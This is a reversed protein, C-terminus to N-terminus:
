LMISDGIPLLILNKNEAKFKSKAKNHDIELVPFSDYHYGLITNVNVFNSAILAEDIGMTYNDGIPLIALDLTYFMPILKMDLTLATDGAIYISKDEATLVFGCPSGGYSGDPFSSSHVATVCKLIGFNFTATGGQNMDIADLAKAKYYNAIEYNSIIIANTQKVIAEVDATHDGHAHTILIYDAKLTNVDIIDKALPNVSIAPDVLITIGNTQISICSQGYYTITM